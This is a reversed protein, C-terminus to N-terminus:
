PLIKKSPGSSSIMSRKEAACSEQAKSEVLRDRAIERRKAFDISCVGTDTCNFTGRALTVSVQRCSSSAQSTLSILTCSTGTSSTM